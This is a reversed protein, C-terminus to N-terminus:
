GCQATPTGLRVHEGVDGPPPHSGHCAPGDAVCTVRMNVFVTFSACSVAVYTRPVAHALSCNLVPCKCGQPSVFSHRAQPSMPWSLVFLKAKQLPFHTCRMTGVMLDAYAKFEAQTGQGLEKAVEVWEMSDRAQQRQALGPPAVQRQLQVPPTPPAILSIDEKFSAHTGDTHWPLVM